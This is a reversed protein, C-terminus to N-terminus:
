RFYLSQVYPGRMSRSLILTMDQISDLEDPIKVFGLRARTLVANREGPSGFRSDSGAHPLLAALWFSSGSRGSAACSPKM